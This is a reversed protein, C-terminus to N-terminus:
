NSDPLITEAILYVISLSLFVNFWGAQLVSYFYKNESYWLILYTPLM